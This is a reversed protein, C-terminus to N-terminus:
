AKIESSLSLYSSEKSSNALFIGIGDKKAAVLSFESKEYKQWIKFNDLDKDSNKFLDHMIEKREKLAEKVEKFIDKDNEKFIDFIFHLSKLEKLSDDDEDLEIEFPNKFNENAIAIQTENKEYFEQTYSFNIEINYEGNPTKIVAQANFEITTKEYYEYNSSYMFQQPLSNSDKAYPNANQNSEKSVQMNENPFLSVANNSNEFGGLVKQLIMKQLYEAKSLNAQDTYIIPSNIMTNDIDDSHEELDEIQSSVPMIKTEYQVQTKQYQINQTYSSLTM